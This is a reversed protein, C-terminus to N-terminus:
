PRFERNGPMYAKLSMGFPVEPTGNCPTNTSVRAYFKSGPRASKLQRSNAFLADYYAAARQRAANYRDLHKLKVNLIAAQIADLRSNVGIKDHYYMQSQGHNAIMRAKAALEDDNTM